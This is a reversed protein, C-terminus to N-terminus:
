ANLSELLDLDDQQSFQVELTRAEVCFSPAAPLRVNPFGGFREVSGLNLRYQVLQMMQERTLTTDTSGIFIEDNYREVYPRTAELLARCRLLVVSERSGTIHKM